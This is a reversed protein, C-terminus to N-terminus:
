PKPEIAKQESFVKGTLYDTFTLKITLPEDFSEIPEALDFTLRYNITVMTAFWLEKLENAKVDWQGLKADAADKNLDWLQVDVSGAAKVIDGQNDMPQIYVILKEYKGDEDKDYLNTYKHIGVNQLQYLNEFRQEPEIGALSKIQQQLQRNQDELNEIQRTLEAKQLKLSDIEGRRSPGVSESQCGASFTLLSVALIFTVRM